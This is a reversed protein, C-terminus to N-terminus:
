NRIEPEPLATLRKLTIKARGSNNEYFAKFTDVFPIAAIADNVYLILEGDVPATFRSVFQRRLPYKSAIEDARPLESAPIKKNYPLRTPDDPGGKLQALRDRYSPDEYFHEPISTGYQDTGVKLATDGDASILPWADSGTRGM